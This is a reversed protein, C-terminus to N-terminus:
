ATEGAEPGADGALGAMVRRNVEILDAIRAPERLADRSQRDVEVALRVVGARLAAPLANDDRACDDKLEGWLKRNFLLAEARAKLQDRGADAVAILRRTAEVFAAYEVDRPAGFRRQATRYANTPAGDKNTIETM